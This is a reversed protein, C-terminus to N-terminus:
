VEKIVSEVKAMMERDMNQINHVRKTHDSIKKWLEDNSNARARFNCSMGLDACAFSKVM